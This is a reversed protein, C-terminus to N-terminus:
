AWYCIQSASSNSVADHPRKAVRAPKGAVVTAGHHGHCFADGLYHLHRTFGDHRDSSLLWFNYTAYWNGRLQHKSVDENDITEGFVQWNAEIIPLNSQAPCFISSNAVARGAPLGVQVKFFWGHM